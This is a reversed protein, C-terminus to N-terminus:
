FVYEKECEGIELDPLGLANLERIVDARYRVKLHVAIIKIGPPMKAVEAGFIKPTLHLSEDALRKM